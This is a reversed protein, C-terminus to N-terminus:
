MQTLSTEQNTLFNCTVINVDRRYKKAGMGHTGYTM